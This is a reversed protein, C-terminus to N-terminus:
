RLLFLAELGNKVRSKNITDKIKILELKGGVGIDNVWLDLETLTTNKELVEGLYRAM